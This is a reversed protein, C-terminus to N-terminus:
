RSGSTRDASRKRMDERHQRLQLRRKTRGTTLEYRWWGVMLAALSGASVAISTRWYPGWLPWYISGTLATVLGFVLPWLLQFVAGAVRAALWRIFAAM